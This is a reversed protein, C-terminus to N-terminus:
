TFDSHDEVHKLWFCNRESLFMSRSAIRYRLSMKGGLRRPRMGISWVQNAMLLM